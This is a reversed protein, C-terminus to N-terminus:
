CNWGRKRPAWCCPSSTSTRMRAPASRAARRMPSPPYHLLRMVSNGDEIAPDFWHEDLGLFVAIRSLITAGAKDFAAYLETFLEQFGEPRDPWVNPPMSNASCRTARPCIAGWM